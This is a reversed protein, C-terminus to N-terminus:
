RKGRRRVKRRPEFSFVSMGRRISQRVPVSVRQLRFFGVTFLAVSITTVYTILINRSGAQGIEVDLTETWVFALFVAMGGLLLLLASSLLLSPASTLVVSSPAPALNRLLIDADLEDAESKGAYTLREVFEDEVRPDMDKIWARLEQDSVLRSITWAHDDALYVALVATVMSSTWCSQVVWHTRSVNTLALAAMAVAAIIGGSTEIRASADQVASKFEDGPTKCECPDELLPSPSIPSITPRRRRRIRPISARRRLSRRIGKRWSGGFATGVSRSIFAEEPVEDFLSALVESQLMWISKKAVSAVAAAGVPGYLRNWVRLDDYTVHVALAARDLARVVPSSHDPERHRRDWRDNYGPKFWFNRDSSSIKWVRPTERRREGLYAEYSPGYRGREGGYEEYSPRYRERERRSGWYEEYSPRYREGESYRRRGERRSYLRPSVEEIHVEELEDDDRNRHM